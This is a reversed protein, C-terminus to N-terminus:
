NSCCIGVANKENSAANENQEDLAESGEATHIWQDHMKLWGMLRGVLVAGSNYEQQTCLHYGDHCATKATAHTCYQCGLRADVAMGPFSAGGISKIDDSSVVKNYIQLDDLFCSLGLGDHYPDNAIYVPEDNFSMEADLLYQHDLIGNIYVFLLRDDVVVAVHTWRGIPITATSDVKEQKGTTTTLVVHLKRSDPWIQIGPTPHSSDGKYILTKFSDKVDANLYVWMMWTMDKSQMDALHQVQYLSSSGDFLASAGKFGFGPGFAPPPDMANQNGSYDQAAADDFSWWGVLGKPLHDPTLYTLRGDEVSGVCLSFPMEM